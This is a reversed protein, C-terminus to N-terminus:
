SYVSCKFRELQSVHVAHNTLQIRSILDLSHPSPTMYCAYSLLSIRLFYFMKTPFSFPLSCESFTSMSAFIVNSHIKSFYHPFNHVPNMQSLIPVLPPINHARHHVKSNWLLLPIEQSASHSNAEWSPGQQMSNTLKNVSQGLLLLLLQPFRRYVETSATPIQSLIRVRCRWSVCCTLYDSCVSTRDWSFSCSTSVHCALTGGAENSRKQKMM